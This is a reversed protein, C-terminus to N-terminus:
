HDGGEDDGGADGKGPGSSVTLEVTDGVAFTGEQVALVEDKPRDSREKVTQVDLGLSILEGAV